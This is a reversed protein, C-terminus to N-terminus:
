TQTQPPGEPGDALLLYLSRRDDTLVTAAATRQADTGNRGVERVAGHLQELLGRLDAGSRLPAFLDLYDHPLLPTTAREAFRLVRGRLTGSRPPDVVATM